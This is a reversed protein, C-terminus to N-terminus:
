APSPGMFFITQGKLDIPLPRGQDLAEVIRKHAADRGQYMVGTLLLNDGARLDKLTEETLPLTIKKVQAM